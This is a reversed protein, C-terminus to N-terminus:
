GRLGVLRKRGLTALDAEIKAMEQQAKQLRNLQDTQIQTQAEVLRTLPQVVQRRLGMSYEIQEDAAKTLTEIYRAQLKLMRNTYAHELM